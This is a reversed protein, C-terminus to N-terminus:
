GHRYPPTTFRIPRGLDVGERSCLLPAEGIGGELCSIGIDRGGPRSCSYRPSHGTAKQGPLRGSLYGSMTVLITPMEPSLGGQAFLYTHAEELSVFQREIKSESLLLLIPVIYGIDSEESCRYGEVVRGSALLFYGKGYRDNLNSATHCAVVAGGDSEGLSTANHMRHDENRQVVQDANGYQSFWLFTMPSRFVNHVIM